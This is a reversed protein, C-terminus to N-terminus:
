RGAVRESVSIHVLGADVGPDFYAFGVFRNM